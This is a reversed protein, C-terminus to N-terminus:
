DILVGYCNHRKQCDRPLTANREEELIGIKKKMEKCYSDGKRNMSTGRSEGSISCTCVQSIDTRKM